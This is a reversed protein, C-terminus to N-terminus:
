IIMGLFGQSNKLETKAADYSLNKKVMVIATKVNWHAKALAALAKPRNLGTIEQVLRIGREKLKKSKAQLDVMRNGYVKGLRVMSITTLMNLVMKTATGSKLRTSGAIIEPGVGLAIVVQAIKALSQHQNCTVLITNTKIKKAQELASLVFPTIGSAAIGIVVDKKTVKRLILSKIKLEEDEAGEESRFVSKKGGAMWAQALTPPTDFTPPLEASELVGLRGSTGAGIFFIRGGNKLSAVVLDIAKIIKEKQNAIAKPIKLNEQNMLSFIEERTLSDLFKSKPNSKETPLKHYLVKV